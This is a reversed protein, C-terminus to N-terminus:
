KKIYKGYKNLYKDMNASAKKNEKEGFEQIIPTIAEFFTLFFYNGNVVALPNCYKFVKDSIKSNFAKDLEECVINTMEAFEDIFDTNAPTGDEDLEIHEFKKLREEINKQADKFRVALGKDTPNFSIQVTEDDRDTFKLDFTKLGTDLSIVGASKAM